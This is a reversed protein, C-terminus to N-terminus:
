TRSRLLAPGYVIAFGAFAAFWAIAAIHLLVLTGGFTAALRALVAVIALAYIAQTAASAALPQGTHGLSARTMVALTMLGVAGAGWAHLGASLPVHAPWIISAGVLLLGLPVFAYAVHLIIVLRESFTREGAWRSLRVAHLLGAAMLLTGSLAHLPAILWLLFALAAGALSVADLRSFSIPMRGPARKALWNHTFSPIIRGGILMILGIAAFFGLRIGFEAHGSARVEAHFVVNGLVLVLIIALVRLNRWNRGAVIERAALGTLGLLFAVDVAAALGAGVVASLAVAIRGAVWMAALAALPVGSVPLRGTWNPIATLLFGAVVAGLYGYLLEHIHWDTPTFATPISLEGFYQPLWLAVTLAAWLSGGLFFLRFGHSFLAPGTYERRQAATANM